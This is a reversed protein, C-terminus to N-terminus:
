RPRIGLVNPIPWAVDNADDERFATEFSGLLELETGGADIYLQAEPGGELHQAAVLDIGAALLERNFDHMSFPARAFLFLARGSADEGLAAESWQRPQQSWRNVGPRKILRLNQVLGRYDRRLDAFEVGEADLDHIRFRPTRAPDVADFAAVSEYANVRGNNTASASAMYGIHTRYDTAFMGANIAATLQRRQAWERASRTTEGDGDAVGALVLEWSKPDIRLVTIAADGDSRTARAPLTALELGPRLERWAVEGARTAPPLGLLAALALLARAAFPRPV